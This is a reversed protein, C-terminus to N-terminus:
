LSESPKVRHLPYNGAEAHPDANILAVAATPCIVAFMAVVAAYDEVDGYLAINFLGTVVPGSPLTDLFDQSLNDDANMGYEPIGATLMMSQFLQKLTSM